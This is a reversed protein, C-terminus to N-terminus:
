RFCLAAFTNTGTPSGTKTWTITFGDLGYATIKGQNYDSGGALVVLSFSTDIGWTDATANHNDFIGIPTTGDDLGVCNQSTGAARSTIFVVARPRFGVGTIAQTGSATSMDRTFTVIKFRPAQPPLVNFQTGDYIVEVPIGTILEGGVLAAGNLFVNKAGLAAGGSPTVNLTTSVTNTTVPIFRGFAGAVYTFNAPGTATLTNTGAVGTFHAYAANDVDNAWSAASLTVGDVITQTTM